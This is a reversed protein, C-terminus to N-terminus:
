FERFVHSLSTKPWIFKEQRRKDELQRKPKKKKTKQGVNEFRQSINKSNM